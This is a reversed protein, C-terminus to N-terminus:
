NGSDFSGRSAQPSKSLKEFFQHNEHFSNCNLVPSDKSKKWDWNLSLVPEM